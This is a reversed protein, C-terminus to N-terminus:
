DEIFIPKKKVILTASSSVGDCTLTYTTTTNPTVINSGTDFNYTCAGAGSWTLTASDGAYISTPNVSISVGSATGSVAVTATAEDSGYANSCILTYRYTKIQNLAPEQTQAGSYNRSGLWDESAACSTPDNDVSWLITPKVINVTGSTPTAWITIVPAENSPPTPTDSVTVNAWNGCNNGEMTGENIVGLSASNTKDACARVSFTGVSTFTYDKTATGTAGGALATMTTPALDTPTACGGGVNCVQFFNSFSAGTDAAGINTVISSFTKAENKVATSPTTSAATLDPLAPATYCITGNWASGTACTANATGTNLQVNNNYLYFTRSSYPITVGTKTGSDATGTSVPPAVVTGASPYSSTVSSGGVVVPNTVTWSVTTTCTSSGSAITCSPTTLTGSMGVPPTCTSYDTGGNACTGACGYNNNPGTPGYQPLSYNSDTTVRCGYKPASCSTVTGCSWNWAQAGLTTTDAPSNAYVGPNCATPNTTPETLRPFSSSGNGCADTPACAAPATRSVAASYASSGAANSASVTYSHSSGAVLGIHSYSTSAGSYIVTAGDKLTYSTAGASASWSVNITGTGCSSATATLGTPTAPIAPASVTYPCYQWGSNATNASNQCYISGQHSGATQVGPQYVTGSSSVGTGPQPSFGFAINDNRVYCNNSSSNTTFTISPNVGSAVPSSVSCSATVAPIATFSFTYTCNANITGTTYENGSWATAENGLNCGTSNKTVDDKNVIYSSSPTLTFKTTGNAAVSQSLPTPSGGVGSVTANVTYGASIRNPSSYAVGAYGDEICAPEGYIDYAQGGGSYAPNLYFGGSVSVSCKNGDLPGTTCTETTWSSNWTSPSIPETGVWRRHYTLTAGATFPSITDYSTDSSSHLPVLTTYGSGEDGTGTVAGTKNLEWYSERACFINGSSDVMANAKDSIGLFTVFSFVFILLLFRSKLTTIM